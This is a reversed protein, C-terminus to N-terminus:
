KIHQFTENSIMGTLRGKNVVFVHHLGLMSFLFHLRVLGINEAVSFPSNEVNLVKSSFDIKKNWFEDGVPIENIEKIEKNLHVALNPPISPLRKLNFFDNATNRRLVSGYFVSATLGGKKYRKTEKVLYERLNGSQISGELELTGEELIPISTIKFNSHALVMGIEEITSHKTLYPFDEEMIDKATKDYLEPKLLKPLFPLDKMEVIVYYISLTFYKSVYYSTTVGVLMPFLLVMQGTLELMIVAMALTHTVGTVLCGAGVVSYKAIEIIGFIKYMLIGYIRGLIAGNLFMPVFIGTPLPCTVGLGNCIFKLFLLGVLKWFLDSKQEYGEIFLFETAHEVNFGFEWYYFIIFITILCTLATYVYRNLITNTKILKKWTLLFEIFRIHLAGIVGCVIGLGFYTFIKVNINYSDEEEPFKTRTWGKLGILNGYVSFVVGCIFSCFFGKWFAGVSFFTSMTEISYLCGGVPTGFTATIGIGGATALIQKRFTNKVHMRKFIPFKSLNNAVAASIHVFPGERGVFLGSGITFFLGLVKVVLTKFSLYKYISIGALTSKLEPIGSGEADRFFYCLTCGIFAFTISIILCYIFNEFGSGDIFHHMVEELWKGSVYAFSISICPTIIALLMLLFWMDWSKFTKIQDAVSGPKEYDTVDDLYMALDTIVQHGEHEEKKEPSLSSDRLFSSHQLRSFLVSDSRKKQVRSESPLNLSANQLLSEHIEKNM